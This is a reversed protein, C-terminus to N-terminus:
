LIFGHEAIIKRCKRITNHHVSKRRDSWRWSGHSDVGANHGDAELVVHVCYWLDKHDYNGFVKLHLDLDSQCVFMCPCYPCQFFVSSGSDTDVSKKMKLM